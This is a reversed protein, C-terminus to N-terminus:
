PRKERLPVAGAAGKGPARAVPEESHDSFHELIRECRKGGSEALLPLASKLAELRFDKEEGSREMRDLFAAVDLLKHRTEIFYLELLKDSSLPPKM